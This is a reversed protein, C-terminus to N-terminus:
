LQSALTIEAECNYYFFRLLWEGTQSSVTSAVSVRSMSQGLRKAILEKIIRTSWLAEKYGYSMPNSTLIVRRVLLYSPYGIFLYKRIIRPTVCKM